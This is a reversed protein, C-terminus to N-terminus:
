SVGFVAKKAHRSDNIVSISKISQDDLMHSWSLENSLAALLYLSKHPM